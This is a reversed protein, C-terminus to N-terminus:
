ALPEGEWYAYWFGPEPYDAAMGAVGEGRMAVAYVDREAFSALVDCLEDETTAAIRSGDEATVFAPEDKCM